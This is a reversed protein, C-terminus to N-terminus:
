LGEGSLPLQPSPRREGLGEGSLPDLPHSGGKVLNLKASLSQHREPETRSLYALLRKRKGVLKLLAHRSHCDHSYLKLHETLRKLRETVLAVQVEVSGTDDEKLRFQEVIEGKSEKELM